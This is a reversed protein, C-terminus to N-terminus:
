GAGEKMLKYELSDVLALWSAEIVNESVGVTGWSGGQGLGTSPHDDSSEILVRVRAGTGDKSDLVRVKYDTLRVEKIVPFHKLLVSRAAEDLANVPGNGQGRAKLKKGGIKIEVAAKATMKKNKDKITEIEYREWIFPLKFIGLTRKLLVEFSAEGEE